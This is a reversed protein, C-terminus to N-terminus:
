KRDRIFQAFYEENILYGKATPKAKLKKERIWARITHISVDYKEALEKVTLM